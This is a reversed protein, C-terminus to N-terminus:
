AAPWSQSTGVTAVAPNAGRVGCLPCHQACVDGKYGVM